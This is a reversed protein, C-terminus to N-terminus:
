DHLAEWFDESGFICSFEVLFYPVEKFEDVFLSADEVDSFIASSLCDGSSKELIRVLYIKSMIGVGIKMNPYLGIVM